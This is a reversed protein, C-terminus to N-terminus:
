GWERRRTKIYLYLKRKKQQKGIDLIGRFKEIEIKRKLRISDLKKNL